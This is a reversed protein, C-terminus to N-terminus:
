RKTGGSPGTTATWRGPSSPTPSGARRRWSEPHSGGLQELSFDDFFRDRIRGQMDAAMAQISKKCVEPFRGLENRMGGAQGGMGLACTKCTNKTRLARYMRLLGGSQRAKRLAYGIAPWGGGAKPRRMDLPLVSEWLTDQPVQAALRGSRLPGVPGLGRGDIGLRDM